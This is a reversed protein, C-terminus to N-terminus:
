LFFPTIMLSLSPFNLAWTRFRERVRVSKSLLFIENLLLDVSPLALLDCPFPPLTLTSPTQPHPSPPPRLYSNPSPDLDRAERRGM